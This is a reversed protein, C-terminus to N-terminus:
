CSLARGHQPKITQFNRFLVKVPILMPLTPNGYNGLKVGM